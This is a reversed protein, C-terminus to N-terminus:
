ILQKTMDKPSFRQVNVDRNLYDLVFLRNVEVFNSKLLCRYKNPTNKIECKTKYENLCVSKEFAKM